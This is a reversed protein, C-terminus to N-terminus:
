MWVPPRTVWLVRARGGTARLEHADGLAFHLADGTRLAYQKGGLEIEADGDLVVVLAEGARGPMDVRGREGTLDIELISLEHPHIPHSLSRLTAPGASWARREDRRMISVAPLDDEAVLRAPEEALARAIRVLAGVTPSTKGREIESLHTPSVKAKEGVQKLTLNRALRLQRIREGLETTPMLVRGTEDASDRLTLRSRRCFM